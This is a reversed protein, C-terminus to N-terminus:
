LIPRGDMECEYATGQWEGTAALLVGKSVCDSPVFM